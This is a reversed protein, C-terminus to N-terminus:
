RRSVEYAFPLHVMQVSDQQLARTDRMSQAYVIRRVGAQHALLFCNWCPLHTVYLVMGKYHSTAHLLVNAEAHLLRVCGENGDVSQILCGVDLCSPEGAPAGNYGTSLPLNEYVLVAGVQKRPCAGRTSAAQAQLLYYDDWGPRTTPKPATM